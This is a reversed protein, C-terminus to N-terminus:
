DVEPIYRRVKLKVTSVTKTTGVSLTATAM